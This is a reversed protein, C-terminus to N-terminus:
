SIGWPNDVEVLRIVFETGIPIAFMARAELSAARVDETVSIIRCLRGDMTLIYGNNRWELHEKTKITM